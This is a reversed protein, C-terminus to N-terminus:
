LGVAATRSAMRENQFEGQLITALRKLELGDHRAARENPHLALAKRVRAEIYPHDLHFHMRHLLSRLFLKMRMLM